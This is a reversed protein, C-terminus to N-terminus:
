AVLLKGATTDLDHAQMAQAILAYLANNVLTKTKTEHNKDVLVVLADCRSQAAADWTASILEFKM